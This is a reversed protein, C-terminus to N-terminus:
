FPEKDTMLREYREFSLHPHAERWEILEPSAYARFYTPNHTFLSFPDIGRMRGRENLMAGNTETEAHAYDSEVILRHEARLQAIQDLAARILPSTM